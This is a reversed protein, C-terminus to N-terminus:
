AWCGTNSTDFRNLLDVVRESQRELTVEANRHSAAGGPLLALLWDLAEMRRAALHRAREQRGMEFRDRFGDWVGDPTPRSTVHEVLLALEGELDHLGSDELDVHRLTHGDWLFNSRNYDGRGLV